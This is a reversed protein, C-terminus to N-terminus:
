FPVDDDGFDGCDGDHPEPSKEKVAAAPKQSQGNKPGVYQFTEVVVVIRSRNEQTKKDKWSEQKIRGSILIPSGKKLTQGILEGVRGWAVCDIFSVENGDKGDASKWTRNYAINFKSICAGDALYRTEPDASLHGALVVQNFNTAM